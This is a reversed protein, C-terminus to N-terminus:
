RLSMGIRGWRVAKLWSGPESMQASGDVSFIIFAAQGIVKDPNVMGLGGQPGPAIRSDLSRDRNDGLLFLREEPVIIEAMDDGPMGSIIDLINYAPHGAIKEQRSRFRCQREGKKGVSEFDPSFCPSYLHTSQTFAQMQATVPQLFDAQLSQPIPVGNLIVQGDDIAIRDGPLGIVRKVFHRNAEGSDFLVIDGRSPLRHDTPGIGYDWKTAIIYDGVLLNPEMSESPIAFPAAVYTRFALAMLFGLTAFLFLRAIARYSGRASHGDEDIDDHRTAHPTTM